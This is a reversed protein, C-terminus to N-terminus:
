RALAEERVPEPRAVVVDEIGAARGPVREEVFGTAETGEAGEVPGFRDTRLPTPIM